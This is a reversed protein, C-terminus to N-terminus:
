RVSPSKNRVSTDASTVIVVKTTNKMSAEVTPPKTITSDSKPSSSSTVTYRNIKPSDINQISVSKTINKCLSETSLIPPKPPTSKPTSPSSTISKSISVVTNTEATKTDKAPIVKVISPSKPMPRPTVTLVNAQINKEFVDSTRSCLIQTSRTTLVPTVKETNQFIKM